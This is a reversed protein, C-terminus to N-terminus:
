RTATDNNQLPYEIADDSMVYNHPPPHKTITLGGFKRTSITM